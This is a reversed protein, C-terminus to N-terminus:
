SLILVSYRSKEMTENKHEKETSIHFVSKANISRLVRPQFTIKLQNLMISERCMISENLKGNINIKVM